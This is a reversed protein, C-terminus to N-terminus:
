NKTTKAARNQCATSRQHRRLNGKRSFVQQCDHCQHEEYLGHERAYKGHKARIHRNMDRQQHTRQKCWQIPCGYRGHLLKYHREQEELTTFRQTNCLWGQYQCKGIMGHKTEIPARFITRIPKKQEKRGKGKPPFGNNESAEETTSGSDQQKQSEKQQQIKQRFQKDRCDCCQCIEAHQAHLPSNKEFDKASNLKERIWQPVTTGAEEVMEIQQQMEQGKTLVAIQRTEQSTESIDKQTPEPTEEFIPHSGFHLECQRCGCGDDLADHKMQAPWNGPAKTAECQECNCEQRLHKQQNKEIACLSRTKRVEQPWWGSGSKEAYHALCSDDYCVTWNLKMHKLEESTENRQTDELNKKEALNFQKTETKRWNKKKWGQKEQQPCDRKFHGEKGCQYCTVEKKIVADLEMPEGYSIKKEKKQYQQRGGTRRQQFQTPRTWTTMKTKTGREMRREYLREDIRVAMEIYTTLTEPRDAKILEDKIDDKLGEYFRAMLPEDDWDLSSTVQRFAAAYATASKVQKLRALEREAKREEDNDGFVKLFREEFEDYSSFIARTEDNEPEEPNHQYERMRPEFWSWAQGRLYSAAHEVRRADSTNDALHFRQYARIQTLFGRAKERDGSFPEPEKMKLRDRQPQGNRLALVQQQLTMILSIM